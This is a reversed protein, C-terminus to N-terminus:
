GDADGTYHDAYRKRLPRLSARTIPNPHWSVEELTPLTTSALLAFVGRDTVRNGGFHLMILRRFVTARALAEMGADTMDVEALILSELNCLNPCRAIRAVGEDGIKGRPRFWDVRRLYESELVAPLTKATVRQVELTSVPAAAFV